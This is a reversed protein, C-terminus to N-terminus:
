KVVSIAVGDGVDLVTSELKENEKIAALYERLRTVATRHKHENYGGLVRGKFLVNDAIIVTGTKSLQLALELYKMYQGKAADIFIVDFTRKEIVFENMKKEGDSLHVTIIDEAECESINKKALNATEENIEVTDIKGGNKLHKAFHLASYGIATGIELISYPKKIELITEILELSSDQLIPVYNEKAYIKMEELKKAYDIM